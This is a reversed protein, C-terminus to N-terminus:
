SRRDRESLVIRPHGSYDRHVALERYRGHARIRDQTAEALSPAIELALLGGPRLWESAGEVIREIAEMGTPGAFLAEPPEYARVEQPLATEEAEAVYPPNSVIVDFREGPVLPQYFSGIRLELRDALGVEIANAQAVNLAGESIDVGLVRAFPGEALLSLGIAGSGTGVDLASLNSRGIAWDLVHGVLLETEPRPILVSRDVRLQLERFSAREEIYEIPEGRVRREVRREYEAREESSLIRDTRKLWVQGPTLLLVGALLQLAERRAQKGARDRLRSEAWRIAGSAIAPTSREPVAKGSGGPSSGNM